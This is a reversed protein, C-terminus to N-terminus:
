EGVSLSIVKANSPNKVWLEGSGSSVILAAGTKFAPYIKFSTAEDSPQTVSESALVVSDGNNQVFFATGVSISALTNVSVWGDSNNLTIVPKTAM